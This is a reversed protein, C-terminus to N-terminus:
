DSLVIALQAHLITKKAERFRLWVWEWWSGESGKKQDFVNFFVLRDDVLLVIGGM